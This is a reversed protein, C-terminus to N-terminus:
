LGRWFRARRDRVWSECRLLLGFIIPKKFFGLAPRLDRRSLALIAWQSIALLHPECPLAEESIQSGRLPVLLFSLFAQESSQRPTSLIPNLIQRRIIDRRLILGPLLDDNAEIFLPAGAM